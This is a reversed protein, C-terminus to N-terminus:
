MRKLGAIARDPDNRLQSAFPSYKITKGEADTYEYTRTIQDMVAEIAAEQATQTYM